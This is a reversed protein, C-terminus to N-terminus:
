IEALQFLFNQIGGGSNGGRGYTIWNVQRPKSEAAPLLLDNWLEKGAGWGRYPNLKPNFAVFRVLGSGYFQEAVIPMSASGLLIESGPRAASALLLTPDDSEFRGYTETLEPISAVTATGRVDVPLLEDLGQSRLGAIDAAGTIVLMGGSAVWMKLARAQEATLQSLPSDCLVLVDLADYSVYDRPLDESAIVTPRAAPGQKNQSLWRRPRRRQPPPPLGGAAPQSSQAQPDPAADDTQYAKASDLVSKFPQRNVPRFIEKASISNLATQDTDVVVVELEDNSGYNRQVKVTASVVPVDGDLLTVEPEKHASNLYVAIEHLQKSGTPLQVDKVFERVQPSPNPDSEARVVLRGTIPKGRNSVSVRFPVWTGTFHNVDVRGFGARVIMEVDDTRAVGQEAGNQGSASSLEGAAALLLALVVLIIGTNMARRKFM